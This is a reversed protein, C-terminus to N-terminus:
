QLYNKQKKIKKSFNTIKKERCISVQIMQNPCLFLFWNNVGLDIELGVDEFDLDIEWGVDEFCTLNQNQM